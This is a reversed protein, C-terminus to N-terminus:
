KKEPEKEQSRFQLLVECGVTWSGVDKRLRVAFTRELALLKIVDSYRSSASGHRQKKVAVQLCELAGAAARSRKTAEFLGLFNLVNSVHTVHVVHDVQWTSQQDDLEVKDMVNMEHLAPASESPQTEQLTQEAVDHNRLSVHVSAGEWGETLRLGARTRQALGQLVWHARTEALCVRCQHQVQLGNCGSLAPECRERGGSGAAVAGPVAVRVGGAEGPRRDPPTWLLASSPCRPRCGM